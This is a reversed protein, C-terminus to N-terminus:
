RIKASVARDVQYLYDFHAKLNTVIKDIAQILRDKKDQTIKSNNISDKLRLLRDVHTPTSGKKLSNVISGLQNIYNYYYYGEGRFVGKIGKTINSIPDLIGEDSGMENESIVQKIIKELDSETLKITKKM